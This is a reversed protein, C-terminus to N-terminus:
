FNVTRSGYVQRKLGEVVAPTLVARAAAYGEEMMRTIAEKGFSTVGYGTLTPNIYIDAQRRNENYKRIDPRDALWKFMGGLQRLFGLPSRYDDHKNQTLDVAIVIDAGMRRVVDIPLNNIMGGDVLMLSDLVVPRFVGPIAMSARMNRAMSGTDLVIEQQHRLDFSVCAYPPQGACTCGQPAHVVLSDLFRYIRDGNLIGFGKRGAPKGKSRRIPFGFLYTIGDAEQVIRHSLSSDRGAFLALWDQSRFLTDLDGSRYGVSYLGGVISGISTGAIYDIPIEAEEMAKLVGVEAAGKAGGGGLVLGVRPRQAQVSFGALILLFSLVLRQIMCCIYENEAIYSM